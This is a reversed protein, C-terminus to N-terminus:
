GVVSVSIEFELLLQCLPACSPTGTATVEVKGKAVATFTATATTGSSGGTSKLAAQNSSTPESWTTGSPGSLQVNLGEEKHLRYSRGNDARTVMVTRSPMLKTRPEAKTSHHGMSRTAQHAAAVGGMVFIGSVLVSAVLLASRRRVM